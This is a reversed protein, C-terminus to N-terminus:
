NGIMKVFDSVSLKETGNLIFKLHFKMQEQKKTASYVEENLKAEASIVSDFFTMDENYVFTFNFRNLVEEDADGTEESILWFSCDSFVHFILEIKNNRKSFSFSNIAFAQTFEDWIGEQAEFLVVLYYM